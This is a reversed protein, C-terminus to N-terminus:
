PNAIVFVPKARASAAISEDAIALNAPRGAPGRASLRTAVVNQSDGGFKSWKPVKSTVKRPISSPCKDDFTVTISVTRSLHDRWMSLELVAASLESSLARSMSSNHM